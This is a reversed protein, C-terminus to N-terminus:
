PNELFFASEETVVRISRIATGVRESPAILEATCSEPTQPNLHVLVLGATSALLLHNSSLLAPHHPRNLLSEFGTCSTRALLQGGSSFVSIWSHGGWFDDDTVWLTESESDLAIGTPNYLEDPFHGFYQPSEEMHVYPANEPIPTWSSLSFRQILGKDELWPSFAQSM